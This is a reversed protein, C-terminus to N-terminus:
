LRECGGSKKSDRHSPPKCKDRSRNRQSTISPSFPYLLQGLITKPIGANGVGYKAPVHLPFYATRFLLDWLPFIGAFNKDIGERQRTHHGRHYAPSVFLWRFPGFDWSINSHLFMVYFSIYPVITLIGAASFGFVLLPLVQFTKTFLDNIPHVRSSSLWTMEEPSHHIAHFPWLRTSHFCRHTWCDIFDALVLLEISQLWLPQKSVPGFGYLLTPDLSRGTVFAFPVFLVAPIINTILRTRMPTFFWWAINVGLNKRLVLPQSNAPFLYELPTLIPAAFAGTGSDRFRSRRPLLVWHKTLCVKGKPRNRGMRPLFM